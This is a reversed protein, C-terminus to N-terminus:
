RVRFAVEFAGHGGGDPGFFPEAPRLRGFPRHAYDGGVHVLTDERPRFAYSGRASVGLRDTSGIGFDDEPRIAGVAVRFKHAQRSDDGIFLVGTNRSPLFASILGREMFTLDMGSTHGELGLPARFRGGRVELPVVPAKFGLYADKLNPPSNVAFDYQFKYDFYRAFVGDAFM